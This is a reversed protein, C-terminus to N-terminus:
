GLDSHFICRDRGRNKAAYLAADAAGLLEEAHDFCCAENHVAAGMSATIVVDEDGLRHRIDRLANLLRDCTARAAEESCGPMLLVFEEGGYRAVIDDRRVGRQLAAATRCLVEDGSLHGYRDNVAKFRDLDIFVVSVPWGHERADAIERALSAQLYGRNYLGTLPDRRNEEELRHTRDELVAAHQMIRIHRLMTLERAHNLITELTASDEVEVEFLHAVEALAAAADELVAVFVEGELGLLREAREMARRLLAQGHAESWLEAMDSAIAVIAADRQRLSEAEDADHSSGVLLQLKEPFNWHRLLLAGLAAHDTGLEERERQLVHEHHWQREELGAYLEPRAQALTLMGIDQLLAALFLEERNRQGFRDAMIQACLAASFSRRWFLRYDFEGQGRRPLTTVLSFSLALTITGEVGFLKIAQRLNGTRRQRAYLPSNAMRILRASLAPDATLAQAVEGMDADPDEGLELIRMVVGVPSPLSACQLLQGLLRQESSAADGRTVM